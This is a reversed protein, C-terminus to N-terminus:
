PDLSNYARPLFYVWVRLVAGTIDGGDEVKARLRITNNSTDDSARIHELAVVHGTTAATQVEYQMFSPAVGSPGGHAVDENQHSTLSSLLFEQVQFAEANFLNKRQTVTAAAM